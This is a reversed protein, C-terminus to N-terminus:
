QVTKTLIRCNRQRNFLHAATLDNLLNTVLLQSQPRCFFRKKKKKEQIKNISSFSMQVLYLIRWYKSCNKIHKITIVATIKAAKNENLRFTQSVSTINQKVKIWKNKLKKATKESLSLCQHFINTQTKNLNKQHKCLPFTIRKQPFSSPILSPIWNPKQLIKKKKQFYFQFLMAATQFMQVSTNNPSHHFPTNELILNIQLSSTISKKREAEPFSQVTTLLNPLHNFTSKIIINYPQYLIYKLCTFAGRNQLSCKQHYHLRQFPHAHNDHM